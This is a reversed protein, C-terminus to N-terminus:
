GSWFMTLPLLGGKNNMRNKLGDAYWVTIKNKDSVSVNKRNYSGATKDSINWCMDFIYPKCYYCQRSGSYPVSTEASQKKELIDLISVAGAPLTLASLVMLLVVIIVSFWKIAKM